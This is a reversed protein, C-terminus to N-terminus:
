GSSRIQQDGSLNEGLLRFIIKSQCYFFILLCHIFAGIMLLSISNFLAFLVLLFPILHRAGLFMSKYFTASRIEDQFLASSLKPFTLKVYDRSSRGLLDALATSLGIVAGNRSVPALKGNEHQVLIGITLYLMIWFVKGGLSDLYTGLGSSKQTVRAINGDICDLLLCCFAIGSVYVFAFKGGLIAVIPLCIALILGSLTVTNASIALLLFPQTPYFSLPRYIFSMFPSIKKERIMKETYSNKISAISNKM